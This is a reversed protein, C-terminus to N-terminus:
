IVALIALVIDLPHVAARWAKRAPYLIFSLTLVVGLFVFGYIQVETINHGFLPLNPVFVISTFPIEAGAAAYYLALLTMGVCLVTVFAAWAGRLSRTRSETEFEEILEQTKTDSTVQELAPLRQELPADTGM